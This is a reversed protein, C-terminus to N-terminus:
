TVIPYYLKNSASLLNLNPNQFPVRTPASDKQAEQQGTDGGKKNQLIQKLFESKNNMIIVKM